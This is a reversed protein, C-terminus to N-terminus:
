NARWDIFDGAPTQWRIGMVAATAPSNSVALGADPKPKLVWQRFTHWDMSRVADPTISFYLRADDTSALGEYVMTTRTNTHQMLYSCRPFAGDLALLYTAFSHRWVNKLAAIQAREEATVTVYRNLEKRLGAMVHLFPKAERYARWDCEWSEPPAERIWEWLNGPHGQRYVRKGSKHISAAMELAQRDVKIQSYAIKGATSARVGGFAELALRAIAWHNVNAKFCRFAQEPSLVNVPKDEVRPATVAMAPDRQIWGEAYARRFFPKVNKLYHRVTLPTPNANRATRIGRLWARLHDATVASLAMSGLTKGLSRRLQVDLHRYHDTGPKVVGEEIRFALYREIAERVTMRQPDAPPMVELFGSAPPTVTLYAPYNSM